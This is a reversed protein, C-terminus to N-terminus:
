ILETVIKSITAKGWQSRLCALVEFAQVLSKKKESCMIVAAVLCWWYPISYWWDSGSFSCFLLWFGCKKSYSLVQGCSNQHWKLVNLSDHPRFWALEKGGVVCSTKQAQKSTMDIKDVIAWYWLNANSMKVFASCGLCNDYCYWCWM